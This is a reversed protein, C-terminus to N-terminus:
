LGLWKNVTDTNESVWKKAYEAPDEKDVVLAYTWASVLASNMQINGLLEAMVLGTKKPHRTQGLNSIEFIIPSRSTM